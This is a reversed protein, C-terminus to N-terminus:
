WSSFTFFESDGATLLPSRRLIFYLLVMTPRADTGRVGSLSSMASEWVGYDSSSPISGGWESWKRGGKEARSGQAGREGESNTGESKLGFNRGQSHTSNSPFQTEGDVFVHKGTCEMRVHAWLRLKQLPRSNLSTWSTDFDSVSVLRESFTELGLRKRGICRRRRMAYEEQANGHGGSIALDGSQNDEEM